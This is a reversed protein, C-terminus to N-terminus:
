EYLAFTRDLMHQQDFYVVVEERAAQGLRLRLAPDGLLRIIAAALPQSASPPVLLGTRGDEVVEVTGDVTTAVIARATAMAELVAFSLGEYLSPLVFLNLAALVRPM